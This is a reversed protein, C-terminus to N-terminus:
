TASDVPAGAPLRRSVALLALAAVLGIGFAGAIGPELGVGTAKALAISSGGLGAGIGVGLTDTLLIASLEGAENGGSAEAMAALPITPFAVGMGLGAVGWGIYPLAIPVNVLAGAVAVTGVIVLM